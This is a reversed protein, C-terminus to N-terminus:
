QTHPDHSSVPFWGGGCSQVRACLRGRVLFVAFVLSLSNIWSTIFAEGQSPRAPATQIFVPAVLSVRCNVVALAVLTRRSEFYSILFQLGRTAGLSVSKGEKRAEKLREIWQFGFLEKPMVLLITMVISANIYPSIGMNFLSAPLAQAQGYLARILRDGASALAVFAFPIVELPYWILAM